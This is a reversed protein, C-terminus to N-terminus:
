FGPWIYGPGTGPVAIEKFKIEVNATSSNEGVTFPFDILPKSYDRPPNICNIYYEGPMLGKIKCKGDTGSTLIVKREDNADTVWEYKENMDFFSKKYEEEKQKIQQLLDANRAANYQKMLQTLEAKKRKYINKQENIKEQTKNALYKKGNENKVIQLTAGELGKRSGDIAIFWTEREFYEPLSLQPALQEGKENGKVNKLKIEVDEKGNNIVIKPDDTQLTALAQTYEKETILNQSKLDDLIKQNSIIESLNDEEETAINSINANRVKEKVQTIRTELKARISRKLVGDEGVVVVLTIGTIILLTIITIVLTILTIAKKNKKM